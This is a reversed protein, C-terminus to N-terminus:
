DPLDEAHIEYWGYKLELDTVLNGLWPALFGASGTIALWVLLLVVTVIQARRPPTEPPPGNPSESPAPKATTKKNM